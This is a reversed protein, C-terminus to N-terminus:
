WRTSGGNAKIVAKMRHPMTSLLVEITELSVEEWAKEITNVLEEKNQPLEEKQITDKVIKWLNEIPNLDPSNAPWLLKRIGHAQRWDSSEKSRHVPAGDEMLILTQPHDHLFYFGSLRSEYVVDVFDRGKRRDPPIIVLPCKDYGTFAGWVMLSSRGSKFSPALCDLSFREHSKRWVKVASSRKGTEFSSEDTWIVNKWDSITWHRHEKAFALRRAMHEKSLFPKKAAVRNSFGISKMAKRLTTPSVKVHMKERIAALPLRRNKSLIRGLMRKDRVNLKPPRGSSKLPQTTGREQFNKWITFVTSQTMGLETAIRHTSMGATRMGIIMAREGESLMRTKTARFGVLLM